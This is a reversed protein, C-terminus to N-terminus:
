RIIEIVSIIASNDDGGSLQFGSFTDPKNTLTTPLFIDCIFRVGKKRDSFFTGIRYHCAALSQNIDKKHYESFFRRHRIRAFDRIQM